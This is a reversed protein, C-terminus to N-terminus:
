DIDKFKDIKINCIVTYIKQNTVYCLLEDLINM